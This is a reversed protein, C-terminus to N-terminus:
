SKFPNPKMKKPTMHSTPKLLEFEVEKPRTQILAQMRILSEMGNRGRENVREKQKVDGTWRDVKPSSEQAERTSWCWSDRTGQGEFLEYCWGKVFGEYHLADEIEVFFKVDSEKVFDDGRKIM